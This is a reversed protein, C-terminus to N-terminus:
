IFIISNSFISSSIGSNFENENRAYQLLKIDDTVRKKLEKGRFQRIRKEAQRYCHAFCMARKTSVFVTRAAATIERAGDALLVDPNYNLDKLIQFINAYAITDENSSVCLMTPVFHNDLRLVPSNSYGLVQVPFGHWM